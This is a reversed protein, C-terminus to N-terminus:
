GTCPASSGARPVGAGYGQSAIRCRMASETLRRFRGDLENALAAACLLYGFGNRRAVAECAEYDRRWSPSIPGDGGVLPTSHNLITTFEELFKGRAPRYLSTRYFLDRLPPPLQRM